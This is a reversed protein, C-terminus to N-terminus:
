KSPQHDHQDLQKYRDKQQRQKERYIQADSAHNRELASVSTDSKEATQKIAENVAGRPDQVADTPVTKKLHANRKLHTTM